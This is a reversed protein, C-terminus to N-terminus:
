RARVLHAELLSEKCLEAYDRTAGRFARKAIGRSLWRVLHLAEHAQSRGLYEYLAHSAYEADHHFLKRLQQDNLAGLMHAHAYSVRPRPITGDSAKRLM